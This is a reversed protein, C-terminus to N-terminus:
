DLILAALAILTSLISIGIAIISNRRAAYEDEFSKGDLYHRLGKETLKVQNEVPKNRVLYSTAVLEDHAKRIRGFLKKGKSFGLATLKIILAKHVTNDNILVKCYEKNRTTYFSRFSGSNKAQEVLYKTEPTELERPDEFTLNVVPSEIRQVVENYCHDFVHNILIDKLRNHKIMDEKEFAGCRKYLRM